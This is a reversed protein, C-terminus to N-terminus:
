KKGIKAFMVVGLVIAGIMVPMAWSANQATSVSGSGFSVAFSGWNPNNVSIGSQADSRSPGAAAGGSVARGLVNSGASILAATTIPDMSGGAFTGATIPKGVGALAEGSPM